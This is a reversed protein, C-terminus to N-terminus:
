NLIRDTNYKKINIFDIFEESIYKDLNNDANM